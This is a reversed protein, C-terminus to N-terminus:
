HVCVNSPQKQQQKIPMVKSEWEKSHVPGRTRPPTKRPCRLVCTMLGSAGRFGIKSQHQLALSDREGDYVACAQADQELLIRLSSSRAKCSCLTRQANVLREPGPAVDADVAATAPCLCTILMPDCAHANDHQLIHPHSSVLGFLFIGAPAWHEFGEECLWSRALEESNTICASADLM